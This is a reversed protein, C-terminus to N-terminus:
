EGALRKGFQQKRSRCAPSTSQSAPLSQFDTQNKPSCGAAPVETREFILNEPPNVIWQLNASEPQQLSPPQSERWRGALSCGAGWGIRASPCALWDAWKYRLLCGLRLNPLLPPQGYRRRHFKQPSVDTVEVIRPSAAPCSKESACMLTCM